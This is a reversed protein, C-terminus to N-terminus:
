VTARKPVGEWGRATFKPRYRINKSAVRRPAARCGTQIDWLHGQRGQPASRVATPRGSPRQAEFIMIKSRFRHDACYASLYVCTLIQVPRAGARLQFDHKQLGRPASRRPLRNTHGVFAGASGASGISGGHPSWLAASSRFDHNELSISPRRVTPALTCVLLSKCRGLVAEFSFIM